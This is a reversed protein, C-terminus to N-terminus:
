SGWASAQGKGLLEGVELMYKNLMETNDTTALPKAKAYYNSAIQFRGKMQNILGLNFYIAFSEVGNTEMTAYVQESYGLKGARSQAFADKLSTNVTATASPDQDVLELPRTKMSPLLSGTSKKLLEALASAKLTDIPTAEGTDDSCHKDSKESSVEFQAPTNKKKLDIVRVQTSLTVQQENCRVQWRSVVDKDKCFIKDDKCKVRNEVSSKRDESMKLNNFELQAWPQEALSAKAPTSSSVTTFLPNLGLKAETLNSIAPEILVASKKDATVHIATYSKLASNEPPQVFEVSPGFLVRLADPMSACGSLLTPLLIALSAYTKTHNKM